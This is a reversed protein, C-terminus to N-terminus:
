SDPVPTFRRGNNNIIVKDGRPSYKKSLRNAMFGSFLGGLFGGIDGLGYSIQRLIGGPISSVYDNEQKLINIAYQLQQNNLKKGLEDIKSNILNQKNLDIKSNSEAIQQNILSIEHAVKKIQENTYNAQSENLGIQSAMVDRQKILSKSEEHIKMMESEVKKGQQANNFNSAAGNTSFGGISAMHGAPTDAAWQGALIPNIGAARLDDMRRRVATNSMREEFDMSREASAQNLSQVYKADSRGFASDLVKSGVAAAVSGLIGM